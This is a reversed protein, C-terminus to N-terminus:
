YTENAPKVAGPRNAALWLFAAAMNAAVTLMLVAHWNHWKDLAWGIFAPSVFGGFNSAANALGGATGGAKGGISVTSSWFPGLMMDGAFAAFAMLFAAPAPFPLLIGALMLAGSSILALFGVIRRARYPPMRRCLADTLLGGVWNAAVGFLFPLSSFFSARELTSGRSEMLYTPFWTIYFQWMVTYGFAVGLLLVLRPSRTLLSWPGPTEATNASEVAIGAEIQDLEERNIRPHEAPTNRYWWQWVIAWVIGLAAFVVFMARWGHRLLIYAAIPPAIAGGIRGGSLFAGFATSREAVPVWRSFASAISPSLAAEGAGFIFRVVLLSTYSWAAATFATFASWWLIAATVIGRAGLRDAVMGWPTQGLFYALSFISFVAGMQSKSLAFQEEISPGAVAICVRDMYSMMDILLALLVITYRIRTPRAV